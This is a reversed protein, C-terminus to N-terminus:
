LCVNATTVVSQTPKENHNYSTCLRYTFTSTPIHTPLLHPWVLSLLPSFLPLLHFVERGNIDSIGGRAVNEWQEEEGDRIGKAHSATAM